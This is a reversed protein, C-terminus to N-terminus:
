DHSESVLKFKEVKAIRHVESEVKSECESCFPIRDPRIIYMPVGCKMCKM